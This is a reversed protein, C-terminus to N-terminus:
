GIERGGRRRIEGRGAAWRRSGHRSRANSSLDAKPPRPTSAAQKSPQAPILGNCGGILDARGAQILAERVTFYSEPKFFQMLARQM